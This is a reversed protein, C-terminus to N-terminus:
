EGKLTSLVEGTVADWIKVTKDISGSVVRLGDHSFSTSSVGGSHGSTARATLRVCFM